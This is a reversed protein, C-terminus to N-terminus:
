PCLFLFFKLKDYGDLHWIYGPGKSLYQRRKLRHRSLCEVGEPDCIKLLERVTERGVVLQHDLQLRQTMQRYGVMDGSKSLEENIASIVNRLDSENNRRTIGLGRILRKLHRLSLHIGHSVALFLLVEKYSFGLRCYSKILDSRGLNRNGLVPIYLPLVCNVGVFLLTIFFVCVVLLNNLSAM